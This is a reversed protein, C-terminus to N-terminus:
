GRVVEALGLAIESPSFGQAMLDALPAVPLVNADKVGDITYARGAIMSALQPIPKSHEVEITILTKM